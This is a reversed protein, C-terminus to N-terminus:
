SPSNSIRHLFYVEDYFPAMTDGAMNSTLHTTSPNAVDSMEYGPDDDQQAYPNQRRPYGGDNGSHQTPYSSSFSDSLSVSLSSFNLRTMSTLITARLRSPRFFVVILLVAPSQLYCCSVRMAALRDRAM